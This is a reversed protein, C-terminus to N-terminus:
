FWLFERCFFDFTSVNISDHIFLLTPSIFRMCVLPYINQCQCYNVNKPPHFHPQEFPLKLCSFQRFLLIYIQHVYGNVDRKEWGFLFWKRSTRMMEASNLVTFLTLLLYKQPCLIEENYRERYYNTLFVFNFFPHNEMESMM